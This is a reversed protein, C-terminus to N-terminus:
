RLSPRGFGRVFVGSAALLIFLLPLTALTFAATLQGWHKIYEGDLYILRVSVTFLEPDRLLILPLLFDNWQNLFVLVALTALAPKCFPLAIHWLQSWHSAGDMEAADFYERPIDEIQSRLLLICFAQGGAIGLATLGFLSNVLNLQDLLSFLPVLNVGAPLLMVSLFVIWLPRSWPLRKRGYFYAGLLAFFLTGVTVVVAVALSNAIAPLLLRGAELYNSWVWQSPPAPLFPNEYFLRNDKLSTQLMLWFPFLELLLIGWIVLHKPLDRM